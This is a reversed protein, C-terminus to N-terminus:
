SDYLYLRGNELEFDVAVNDTRTYYIHGNEAEFYMYGSAAAAQEAREADRAAGASATTAQAAYWGANAHYYPSGEEVDAGNQRGVALGEAKLADRQSAEASGSAAAAAATATNGAAIVRDTWAEWAAPPDEQADYLSEAVMTRWTRSIARAGGVTYSLECEGMGAIAVDTATVDWEVSSGEVRTEQVVWAQGEGPRRVRVEFTGGEGYTAQWERVYPFRVQEALNEGQKGLYLTQNGATVIRM